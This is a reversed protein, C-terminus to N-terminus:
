FGEATAATIQWSTNMIFYYGKTQLKFGQTHAVGELYWVWKQVRDPM